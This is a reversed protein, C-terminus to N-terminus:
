VSLSQVEIWRTHDVSSSRTTSTPSQVAPLLQTGGKIAGTRRASLDRAPGKAKAKGKASTRTARKNM